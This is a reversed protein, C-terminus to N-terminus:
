NIAQNMKAKGKKNLFYVVRWYYIAIISSVGLVYISFLFELIQNQGKFVLIHPIFLIAAILWYVGYIKYYLKLGKGYPTNWDKLKKGRLLSGFTQGLGIFPLAFCWYVLIGYIIEM